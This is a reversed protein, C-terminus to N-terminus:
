KNDWLITHGVEIDPQNLVTRLRVRAQKFEDPIGYVISPQIIDGFKGPLGTYEWFYPTFDEWTQGNDTSYQSYTAGSTGTIPTAGLNVQVQIVVASAPIVAEATYFEGSRVAGAISQLNKWAM